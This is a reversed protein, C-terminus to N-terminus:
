VHLSPQLSVSLEIQLQLLKVQHFSVVRSKEVSLCFLKTAIEPFQAYNLM